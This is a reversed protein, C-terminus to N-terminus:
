HGGEKAQDLSKELLQLRAEAVFLGERWSEPLQETPPFNQFAFRSLTVQAQNFAEGIEALEAERLRDPSDPAIPRDPVTALMEVEKRGQEVQQGFRRVAGQFEKWLEDNAPDKQWRLLALDVTRLNNARFDSELPAEGEQTGEELHPLRRGCTRCRGSLSLEGGCFPCPEALPACQEIQQFARALEAGQKLAEDRATQCAQAGSPLAKQMRTLAQELAEVAQAALEVAEKEQESERESVAGQSASIEKRAERTSTLFTGLFRELPESGLRDRKWGEYLYNLQMLQPSPLMPLGFGREEQELAFTAKRISPDLQRLSELEPPNRDNSLVAALRGCLTVAQGVEKELRPSTELFLPTKWRSPRAKQFHQALDSYFRELASAVRAPDDGSPRESDLSAWLAEIM